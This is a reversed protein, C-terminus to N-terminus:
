RKLSGATPPLIEDNSGGQWMPFISMDQGAHCGRGQPGIKLARDGFTAVSAVQARAGAFGYRAVKVGNFPPSCSMLDCRHFQASIRGPLATSLVSQFAHMRGNSNRLLIQSTHSPITLGNGSSQDNSWVLCSRDRRVVASPVTTDTEPPSGLEAQEAHNSWQTSPGSKSRNGSGNEM